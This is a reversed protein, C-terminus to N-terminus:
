FEIGYGKGHSNVIKINPDNQLKKRLKSVLVDLNRSIVFVGENEWIEKLLFDREVIENPKSLLLQLLKTENESLDITENGFKLTKDAAIVKFKGLSFHDKETENPKKKKSYYWLGYGIFILFPFLFLPWNVFNGLIQIRINYCDKPYVRGLCPIGFDNKKEVKYGYILEEKKNCSYVSVKYEKGKSYVSLHRHVIEILTDPNLAFDSEFSIQYTSNGLEQIPLVRSTSDGSHLLLVHGINRFILTDEKEKCSFFVVISFLIFLIKSKMLLQLKFNFLREM